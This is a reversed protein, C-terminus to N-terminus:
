RRSCRGLRVEISLLHGCDSQSLNIECDSMRKNGKQYKSNRQWWLLLACKRKCAKLPNNVLQVAWQLTSRSCSTGELKRWEAREAILPGVRSKWCHSSLNRQFGSLWHSSIPKSAAAQERRWSDRTTENNSIWLGTSFGFCTGFIQFCPSKTYILFQVLVWLEM